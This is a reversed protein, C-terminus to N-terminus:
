QNTWVKNRCVKKVCILSPLLGGGTCHVCQGCDPLLCKVCSGCSVKRGGGGTETKKTNEELNKNQSKVPTKPAEVPKKIPSKVIVEQRKIPSKPVEELRKNLSKIPSKVMTEPKKTPSKVPSKPVDDQRKTSSKSPSKLSQSSNNLSNTALKKKMLSAKYLSNKEKNNLIKSTSPLPSNNSSSLRKQKLISSNKSLRKVMGHHIGIHLILSHISKFSKSCINCKRPSSSFKELLQSKFHVLSLHSKLGTVSANCLKCVIVPAPAPKGPINNSSSTNNVPPDKGKCRALHWNYSRIFTFGTDCKDCVYNRCNKMSLYSTTKDNNKTSDEDDEEKGEMQPYDEESLEAELKIAEVPVMKMVESLVSNPVMVQGPSATVSSSPMKDEDDTLINDSIDPTKTPLKKTPFSTLPEAALDQSLRESREIRKQNDSKVNGSSTFLNKLGTSIVSIRSVNSNTNSTSRIPEDVLSEQSKSKNFRHHVSDVNDSNRRVIQSTVTKLKKNVIDLTDLELGLVDCLDLVTAVIDRNYPAKGTYLLEIMARCEAVGVGALVLSRPAHCGACHLSSPASLLSSLFPSSRALLASHGRVRGDRCVLVLDAQVDSSLWRRAPSRLLM